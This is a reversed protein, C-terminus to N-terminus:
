ANKVMIDEIVNAVDEGRDATHELRSYIEKWKILGVVDTNGNHFLKATM